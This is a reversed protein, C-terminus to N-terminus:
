KGSCDVQQEWWPRAQQVSNGSSAPVIVIEGEKGLREQERAWRETYADSKAYEVASDLEAVCKEGRKVEISLRDYESRMKAEAQIRSVINVALPLSLLLSFVFLAILLRNTSTPQASEAEFRRYRSREPAMNLLRHIGFFPSSGM